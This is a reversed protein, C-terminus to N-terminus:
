TNISRLFNSLQDYHQFTTTSEPMPAKSPDPNFIVVDMNAARAANFGHLTDEVVLCDSPKCGLGQAAALFLGPDPKWCSIEYASFINNGFYQQLDSIKLNLEIKHRPGNSAIAVSAQIDQLLKHVGEFARLDAEFASACRQRFQDEFDGPLPTVMEDSVEALCETINRGAFRQCSTEADIPYQYEALHDSLVQHAIDESNVLTGDMDFIVAQYPLTRPLM